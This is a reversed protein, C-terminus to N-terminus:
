PLPLYTRIGYISIFPSLSLSPPPLRSPQTLLSPYRPSISLPLFSPFSQLSHPSILHINPLYHSAVKISPSPSPPLSFTIFITFILICFIICM